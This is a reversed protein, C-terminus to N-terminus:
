SFILIEIIKIIMGECKVTENSFAFGPLCIEEDSKVNKTENVIVENQKEIEKDQLNIKVTSAEM